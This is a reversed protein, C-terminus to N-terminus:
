YPPLGWHEPVFHELSEHIHSPTLGHSDGMVNVLEADPVWVVQM